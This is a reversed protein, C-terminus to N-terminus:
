FALNDIDVDLTPCTASGRQPLSPEISGSLSGFDDGGAIPQDSLLDRFFPLTIDVGADEQVEFDFSSGREM